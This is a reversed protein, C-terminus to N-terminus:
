IVYDNNSKIYGVKIRTRDYKGQNSWIHGINLDEKIPAVTINAASSCMHIIKIAVLCYM